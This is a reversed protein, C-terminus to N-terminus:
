PLRRYPTRRTDDAYGPLGAKLTQDELWNGIVLALKHDRPQVNQKEAAPLGEQLLEPPLRFAWIRGQGRRSLILSCIGRRAM